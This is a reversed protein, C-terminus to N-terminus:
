SASPDKIVKHSHRLFTDLIDEHTQMMPKLNAYAKLMRQYIAHDLEEQNRYSGHGCLRKIGDIMQEARFM